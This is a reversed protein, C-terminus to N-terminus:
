RRAGNSRHVAARVPFRGIGYTSQCAPGLLNHGARNDPLAARRGLPKYWCHCLVLVAGTNVAVVALRQRSVTARLCPDAPERDSPM